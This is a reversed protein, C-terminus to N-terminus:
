STLNSQCCKLTSSLSVHVNFARRTEARLAHPPAPGAAPVALLRRSVTSVMSDGHYLRTLLRRRGRQASDIAAEKVGFVSRRRRARVCISVGLTRSLIWWRASVRMLACRSALSLCCGSSPTCDYNGDGHDPGARGKACGYMRGVDATLRKPAWYSAKVASASDPWRHTMWRVTGGGQQRRLVEQQERQWM